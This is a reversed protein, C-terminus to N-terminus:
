RRKDDVTLVYFTESGRIIDCGGIFEGAVYVQPVTPWERSDFMVFQMLLYRSLSLFSVLSFEKIDNRLAPDELVDYTQMKESPVGLNDLALIVARSFGCQPTEPTGKMFLVVPKSNVASQIQLRSEQSLFRRQLCL